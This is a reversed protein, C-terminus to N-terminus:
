SAGMPAWFCAGKETSILAGKGNEKRCIHYQGDPSVRAEKYSVFTNGEVIWGGNTPKVDKVAVVYCDLEHCCEWPYWSHSLAKTCSLVLMLFAVIVLSASLYPRDDRQNFHFSPCM